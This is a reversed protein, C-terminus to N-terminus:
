TQRPIFEVTGIERERGMEKMWGSDLRQGRLGAAALKAATDMEEAKSQVLELLQHVTLRATEIREVSKNDYEIEVFPDSKM